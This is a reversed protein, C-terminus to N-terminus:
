IGPVGIPGFELNPFIDVQISDGSGILHDTEICCSDYRNAQDPVILGVTCRRAVDLDQPFSCKSAAITTQPNDSIHDEIWVDAGDSRAGISDNRAIIEDAPWGSCVNCVGIGIPREVITEQSGAVTALSNVEVSEVINNKTSSIAVISDLDHRPHAINGDITTTSPIRNDEASTRSRIDSNEIATGFILQVNLPRGPCVLNQHSGIVDINERVPRRSRQKM